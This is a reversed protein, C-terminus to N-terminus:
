FEPIHEVVKDPKEFMKLTVGKHGQQGGPKKGSSERLSRDKSTRTYDQSPPISSNRSNKPNEYRSLREELSAIKELLTQIIEKLQLNKKRLREKEQYLNM